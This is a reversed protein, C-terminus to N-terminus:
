SSVDELGPPRFRARLEPPLDKAWVDLQPVWGLWDALRLLGIETKADPIEGRRCAAIADTLERVHVSAGEEMVSGDGHAAGASAPDVEVAVLWVMEDTVGPTPFFGPGLERARSPDVDFGAEERAEAAGRRKLGDEGKDVPELVGAVLEDIEDYARPDPRVLEDQKERRLWVAARTNRRLHVFVKGEARHYLVVAVADVNQRSLIDCGYERSVTGDSFHSRLRLRRLRLFGQDCRSGATRDEVTEIKVVRRSV